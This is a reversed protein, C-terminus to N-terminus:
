QLTTLVNAQYDLETRKLEIHFVIIIIFLYKINSSLM